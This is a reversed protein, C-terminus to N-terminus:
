EHKMKTRTLQTPLRNRIREFNQKFPLLYLDILRPHGKDGGGVGFQLREGAKYNITSAKVLTGFLKDWIALASGLNKDFHLPNDSHHIQHQAPSIFLNELKNGWSLWVHSHRLNAGMLNFLFVFINAGAIDMMSIRPGFLYYAIGVAIGQAIAMRCAYFYSEIPHSRYITFPTLVTASHHVKHFDWLIPVKHLLFHLIFRTLDDIIFLLLTFFFIITSRDKTLPSIDGFWSSLWDSFGIAIPVMAVIIPAFILARIFRNIIWLGYDHKASKALWIRKPFLFGIFGAATKKSTHNKSSDVHHYFFYVPITLVLTSLLYGYYIRQNADSLYGVLAYLNSNLITLLQEFM